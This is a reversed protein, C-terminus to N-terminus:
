REERIFQYGVGRVTKILEMEPIHRALKQRVRSVHVDIARDYAALKRHLVLETLQEKAIVAGANALLYGLVNFETGTLELAQGAVNVERTGPDLKVGVCEIPQDPFLTTKQQPEIRRLVARIRALLERPNCPKSLYDDAGMELGLIRDIDEGRGTLMIVPLQVSPRIEQLLELGSKGPMMVDLLMLSFRDARQLKEIAENADHAFEIQFGEHQLYDGILECLEVDDDVMLLRLNNSM